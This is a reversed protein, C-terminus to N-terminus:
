MAGALCLKRNIRKEERSLNIRLLLAKQHITPLFTVKKEEPLELRFIIMANYKM